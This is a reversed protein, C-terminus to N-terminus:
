LRVVGGCGVVIKEALVRGHGEESEFSWGAIHPSLVVNDSQRLYQFAPPLADPNLHAFSTEEYEIVDLAAGRVQGSKLRTVLDETHLILGRATNILFIPKAFRDLFAGDVFYHNDISYPFHLSIIDSENWLTDLDVAEACFDAYNTLYRDYAIVRAQFGQLRRAFARGMNGYGMIGVTKGKIEIGRNGERIWQGARVQRDARSLNNLLALLLGMTHEAVTDRSGEPSTFVQIGLQAAADLDIHEVGVGWRAIFDLHAVQQLFDADVVFRSRVVMGRCDALVAIVEEKGLQTCDLCVMGASELLERLVPHTKDVLAIKFMTRQQINWTTPQLNLKLM